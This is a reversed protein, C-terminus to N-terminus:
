SYWQVLCQPWVILQCYVKINGEHEEIVNIFGTLKLNEKLVEIGSSPIAAFLSGAPKLLKLLSVYLRAIDDNTAKCIIM